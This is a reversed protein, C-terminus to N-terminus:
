VYSLGIVLVGSPISTISPRCGPLRLRKVASSFRWRTASATAGPELTLRIARLTPTRPRRFVFAVTPPYARVGRDISGTISGVNLQCFPEIPVGDAASCDIIAFAAISVAM